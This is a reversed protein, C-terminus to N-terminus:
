EDDDDDGLRIQWYSYGARPKKEPKKEVLTWSFVTKSGQVRFSRCETKAKLETALKKATKESDNKMRRNARLLRVKESWEADLEIPDGAPSGNAFKLDIAAMTGPTDDFPPLRRGDCDALFEDEKRVLEAIRADDWAVEFPLVTRGQLVGSVGWRFGLVEMGHEIQRKYDARLEKPKPGENTKADFIGPGREDIPAILFDPSLFARRNKSVLLTWPPFRLLGVGEQISYIHGIAPELIAAAEVNKISREPIIGEVLELYLGHRGQWSGEGCAAAAQSGGIYPLGGGINRRMALWEPKDRCFIVDVRRLDIGVDEAAKVSEIM